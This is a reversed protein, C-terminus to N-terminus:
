RRNGDSRVGLDHLERWRHQLRDADPGKWYRSGTKGMLSDLERMEDILPTSNAGRGFLARKAQEDYRAFIPPIREIQEPTLIGKNVLEDGLRVMLRWAAELDGRKRADELAPTYDRAISLCRDIAEEGLGDILLDRRINRQVDLLMDPQQRSSDAIKAEHAAGADRSLDGIPEAVATSSPVTVAGGGGDAPVPLNESM